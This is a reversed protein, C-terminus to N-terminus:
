EDCCLKNAIRHREAFRNFCTAQKANWVQLLMTGDDLVAITTPDTIKCVAAVGEQDASTAARFGSARQQAQNNSDCGILLLAPAFPMVFLKTLM